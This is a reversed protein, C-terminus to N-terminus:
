EIQVESTLNDMGHRRGHVINMVTPLTPDKSESSKRVCKKLNLRLGSIELLLEEHTKTSIGEWTEGWKGKLEMVEPTQEAKNLAKAQARTVHSKECIFSRIVQREETYAVEYVVVKNDKIPFYGGMCIEPTLNFTELEDQQLLPEVWDAFILSDLKGVKPSSDLIPPLRRSVRLYLNKIRFM